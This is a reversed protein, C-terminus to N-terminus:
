GIIPSWSRVKGDRLKVTFGTLHRGEARSTIKFPFTYLFVVVSEQIPVTAGPAGFTNTVKAMSMGSVILENLEAESYVRATAQSTATSPLEHSKKNCSCLLALTFLLICYLRNQVTFVMHILAPTGVFNATM